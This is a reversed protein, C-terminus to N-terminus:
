RLTDRIESNLERECAKRLERERRLAAQCEADGPCAPCPKAAPCHGPKAPAPCNCPTPPAPNQDQCARARAEEAQARALETDRRASDLQERLSQLEGPDCTDAPPQNQLDALKQALALKERALADRETRLTALEGRAEMYLYGVIALLFVLVACTIALLRSHSRPESSNTPEPRKDSM